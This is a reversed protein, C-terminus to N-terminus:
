ERWFPKMLERNIDNRTLGIDRLMHESLMAMAQRLEVRMSWVRALHPIRRLVDLFVAIRDSKASRPVLWIRRGAELSGPLM